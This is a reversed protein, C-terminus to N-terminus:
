SPSCPSGGRVIQFVHEHPALEPIYVRSLGHRSRRWNREPGRVTGVSLDYWESAHSLVRPSYSGYPFAVSTVKRALKDQLVEKSKRLEVDIAADNLLALPQHTCTHSAIEHGVLALEELQHWNMHRAILIRRSNWSNEKGCYATVVFFTARVRMDCLQRLAFHYTDEYGDDFTLVVHKRPDRGQSYAQLAQSLTWFQYSELLWQIHRVLNHPHITLYHRLDSRVHHYYLVPV